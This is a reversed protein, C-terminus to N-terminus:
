HVAIVRREIFLANGRIKKAQVKANSAAEVVQFSTLAAAAAASDIRVAGLSMSVLDIFIQAGQRNEAMYGDMELHDPRYVRRSMTSFSQLIRHCRAEWDNSQFLLVFNDGGIHGVFDTLDNIHHRLVEATLGIIEDGKRYGYFDNFPKFNDLNCSCIVFSTGAELLSEIQDNISVNGPLQTLPNAYRSAQLHIRTLERVLDHASGMGIYQGGDTIIFGNSLHWPDSEVILHSVDQLTTQHDVMLPTPECFRACGQDGYHEGQYTHGFCNIMKFRTILGIPVGQDLVPVVQLTPHEMFLEHVANASTARSVSPAARLINGVPPSQPRRPAAHLSASRGKGSFLALTDPLLSIAPSASPRGLFYGQGFHIGLERVVQLEAQTEIGEAIVASNSKGAIELISQVFQLKLPDVDIGQIFHMDIKVCEPRLESWLRLSSFGEGLDDIAIQLGFSRYHAAADCLLGYDLTADSETVELVIHKPGFGTIQLQQLDAQVDRRPKVLVDPSVNLFLKGPLGLESFRKLLVTRCARELDATIGHAKAVKFLALPSHLTSNSPGRILGEYGLVKGSRLSVIPQYLPTLAEARLIKRLEALMRREKSDRSVSGSRALIFPNMESNRNQM